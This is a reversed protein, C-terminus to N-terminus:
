LVLSSQPPRARPPARCWSGDAFSCGVLGGTTAWCSLRGVSVLHASIVYWTDVVAACESSLTLVRGTHSYWVAGTHLGPCPQAPCPLARCPVAPCPLAPGLARAPSVGYKGSGLHHNGM